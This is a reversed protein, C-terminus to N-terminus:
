CFARASLMYYTEFNNFEKKKQVDIVYEHGGNSYALKTLDSHIYLAFTPNCNAFYHDQNVTGSFRCTVQGNDTLTASIMKPHAGTVTYRGQLTLCAQVFTILSLLAIIPQFSKM